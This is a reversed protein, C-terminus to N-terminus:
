EILIVSCDINSLIDVLFYGQRQMIYTEYCTMTMTLEIDIIQAM